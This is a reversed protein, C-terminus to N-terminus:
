LCQIQNLIPRITQAGFIGAKDPNPLALHESSVWGSYGIKALSTLVTEFDIHGLGPALRNSDGLHVHVLSSKTEKITESWSAEEINMHFTDLLLGVNPSGIANIVNVAEKATNILSSEYRNLPEIALIISFGEADKALSALTDTLLTLDGSKGRFSGITVIKTGLQAGLSILERARQIAKQRQSSESASLTLGEMSSQLGSGIAAVTLSYKRITFLIQQLNLKSPDRVLLEVGDYGADSIKRTREEFTGEFLSISVSEEILPSLTTVAFKM